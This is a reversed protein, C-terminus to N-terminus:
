RVTIAPHQGPPYVDASKGEDGRVTSTSDAYAVLPLDRHRYLLAAVKDAVENVDDMPTSTVQGVRWTVGGVGECELEAVITDAEVFALRTAARHNGNVPHLMFWM